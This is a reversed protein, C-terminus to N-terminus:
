RYTWSSKLLFTSQCSVSLLRSWSKCLSRPLLSSLTTPTPSSAPTWVAPCLTALSTSPPSRLLTTPPWSPSSLWTARRPRSRLPPTYSVLPVVLLLRCSTLMHLLSCYRSLFRVSHTAAAAPPASAGPPAGATVTQTVTVQENKTTTAAGGGPNAWILIIQTVSGAGANIVAAGGAGAAVGALAGAAAGKAVGKKHEMRREAPYVNNVAKALALPALALSLAASFKM